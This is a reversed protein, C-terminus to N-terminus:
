FIALVFQFTVNILQLESFTDIEGKINSFFLRVSVSNENRVFYLSCYAFIAESVVYAITNFTM